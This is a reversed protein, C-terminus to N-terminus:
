QPCRVKTCIWVMQGYVNEVWARNTEGKGGDNEDMTGEEDYTTCNVVEELSRRGSGGCKEHYGAVEVVEEEVIM